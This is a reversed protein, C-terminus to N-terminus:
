EEFGMLLHPLPQRREGGGRKGGGQGLAAARGPKREEAVVVMGGVVAPLDAQHARQLSQSPQWLMQGDQLPRGGYTSYPYPIRSKAPAAM